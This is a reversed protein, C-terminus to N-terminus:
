RRVCARLKNLLVVLILNIQVNRNILELSNEIEQVALSLDANPFNNTFNQLVEQQDFHVIFEESKDSAERFVLADRFWVLLHSLLARVSKADKQFNQLLKDVYLLQLYSNQITTRFFELALSEMHQLEDGLMELGRSYSGGALRAGLKAASASAGAKILADEILDAALPDFKVLQCRSRITPLLLSPKSSTMFLYMKDPPEELIKLLANSAEITMRECDLILFVRGRGEFAKYAAKRRIERIKDISVSPNAWPQQRMYPNAVISDLIARHEEEKLKPPSSFILHLDPHTLNQLRTDAQAAANSALLQRAIAVALAEKGTGRPGVFLYAHSLRESALAREFFSKVRSQGIVKDFPM